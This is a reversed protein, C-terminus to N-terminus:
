RELEARVRAMSEHLDSEIRLAGVEIRAAGTRVTPDSLLEYSRPGLVSGVDGITGLDDPHLWIELHGKLPLQAVCREIAELAPDASRDLTRGVVVEALELALALVQDAMIEGHRQHHERLSNVAIDLADISRRLSAQADEYEALGQQRGDLLGQAFGEDYGAAKAAESEAAVRERWPGSPEVAGLHNREWPVPDVIADIVGSKIVVSASASM